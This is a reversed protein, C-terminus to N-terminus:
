LQCHDPGGGTFFGADFSGRVGSCRFRLNGNPGSLICSYPMAVAKTIGSTVSLHDISSPHIRAARKNYWNFEEGTFEGVLMVETCSPLALHNILGATCTGYGLRLEKLAALCVRNSLPAIPSERIAPLHIEVFELSPCRRFFSTLDQVSVDVETTFIFRTLSPINLDRLDTLLWSLSLTALKPFQGGFITGPLEVEEVTFGVDERCRNDNLIELHKLEPAPKTLQGLVDKLHEHYCVMKLWRLRYINHLTVPLFPEIHDAMDVHQYIDLLQNESRALFGEAQKSRLTSFDIHTWLSPTSLLVDRWSRCVHTMTVLPKNMPFKDRSGKESTFFCPIHIFIDKPLRNVPHPVLKPSLIKPLVGTELANQM